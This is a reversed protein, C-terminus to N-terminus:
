ASAKRFPFTKGSDSTYGYGIDFRKLEAMTHGRTVGHGNTRCDLTWDHFVAFENDTTHHVDIEVIDAGAEFGARMSRITNELYDTNNFYPGFAAVAIAAAVDESKRGM